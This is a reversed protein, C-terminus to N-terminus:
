VCVISHICISHTIYRTIHFLQIFIAEYKYRSLNKMNYLPWMMISGEVDDHNNIGYPTTYRYQLGRMNDQTIGFKIGDFADIFVIYLSDIANRDPRRLGTRIDDPHYHYVDPKKSLEKFRGAKTADEGGADTSGAEDASSEDGSEEARIARKKRAAEAAEKVIILTLIIVPKILFFVIDFKSEYCREKIAECLEFDHSPNIGFLAIITHVVM